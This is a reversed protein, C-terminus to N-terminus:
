PPTIDEWGPGYAADRPDESLHSATDSYLKELAWGPDEEVDTDDNFEDPCDFDFNSWRRLLADSAGRRYELGDIRKEQALYARILKSVAISGKLSTPDSAILTLDADTLKEITM